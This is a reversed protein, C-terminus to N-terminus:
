ANVSLDTQPLATQLTPCSELMVRSRQYGIILHHLGGIRYTSM